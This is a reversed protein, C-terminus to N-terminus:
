TQVLVSLPKFTDKNFALDLTAGRL